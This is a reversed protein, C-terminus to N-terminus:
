PNQQSLDQGNTTKRSPKHPLEGKLDEVDEVLTSMLTMMSTLQQQLQQQGQAIQTVSDQSSVSTTTPGTKADKAKTSPPVPFENEMKTEPNKLWKALRGLKTCHAEQNATRLVWQCYEKQQDRVEAYTLGAHTGFGVPDRLDPSSIEYIRDMAYHLMREKNLDYDVHIKLVERIFTRLTDKKKAAENLRATWMQLNTQEKKSTRVIGHETELEALRTQLETKGWCSPPKEGLNEVATILQSKSLSSISPM